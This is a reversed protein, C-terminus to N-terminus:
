RLKLNDDFKEFLKVNLDYDYKEKLFKKFQLEILIDFENNFIHHKDQCKIEDILHNLAIEYEEGQTPYEDIM